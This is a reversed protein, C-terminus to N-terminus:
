SAISVREVPFRNDSLYDVARQAQQYTPYTVVTRRNLTPSADIEPM